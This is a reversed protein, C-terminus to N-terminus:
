EDGVETSHLTLSETWEQQNEFWLSSYDTLPPM